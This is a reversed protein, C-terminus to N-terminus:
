GRIRRHSAAAAVMEPQRRARWTLLELFCRKGTGDHDYAALSAEILAVIDSWESDTLGRGFGQLTGLIRQTWVLVPHREDQVLENVIRFAAAKTRDILARNNLCLALEAARDLADALPEYWGNALYIEATDLYADTASLAARYDRCREWL